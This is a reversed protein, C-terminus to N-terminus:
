DYLCGVLFVQRGGGAIVIWTFADSFMRACLQRQAASICCAANAVKMDASNLLEEIASTVFNTVSIGSM